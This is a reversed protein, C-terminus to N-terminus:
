LLNATKDVDNEDDSKKTDDVSLMSERPKGLPFIIKDISTTIPMSNAKYQRPTMVELLGRASEGVVIPSRSSNM